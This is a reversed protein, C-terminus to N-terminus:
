SKLNWKKVGSIGFFMLKFPLNWKIIGELNTTGLNEFHIDKGVFVLGTIKGELFLYKEIAIPLFDSLDRKLNELFSNYLSEISSPIAKKEKDRIFKILEELFFKRLTEFPQYEYIKKYLSIFVEKIEDEKIEIKKEEDKLSLSSSSPFYLKLENASNRMLETFIDLIHILHKYELNFFGRKWVNVKKSSIKEGMEEIINRINNNTSNAIDEVLNRCKKYQKRVKWWKYFLSLFLLPFLIYFFSSLFPSDKFIKLLFASIFSIIFPPFVFIKWMKKLIIFLEIEEKLTKFNRRLSEYLNEIEKKWFSSLYDLNFVELNEMENEKIKKELIGRIPKIRHTNQLINQIEDKIQIVFKEGEKEMEKWEELTFNIKEWAIVEKLIFSKIVEIKEALFADLDFNREGMELYNELNSSIIEINKKYIKKHNFEWKKIHKEINEDTTEESKRYIEKLIKSIGEVLKERVNKEVTFTIPIYLRQSLEKSFMTKLYEKGYIGSLIFNEIIVQYDSISVNKGNKFKEEVWLLPYEFNRVEEYKEIKKGLVLAGGVEFRQMKLLSSLTENFLSLDTEPLVILYLTPTKQPFINELFNNELKEKIFIACNSSSYFIRLYELFGAWESKDEGLFLFVKEESLRKM